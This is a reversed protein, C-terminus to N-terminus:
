KEHKGAKVRAAARSAALRARERDLDSEMAQLRRKARQLAEQAREVDIESASECTDTMLNVVNDSIEVFGEGVSFHRESGYEDIKLEVVGPVVAAVLPAHNAWIGMYGALGPMTASIAEGEYATKDPTVIMVKFTKAM